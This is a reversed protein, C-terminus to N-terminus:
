TPKDFKRKSRCGASQTGGECQTSKMGDALGYAVCPLTQIRGLDFDEVAQKALSFIGRNSSMWLNQRDDELVQFIVNQLPGNHSAYATFKGGRYRSLGRQTGFWLAGQADEYISYVANHALGDRTTFVTFRGNQYRCLGDNTGIWLDGSRDQRIVRILDSTLGDAKRITTFKGDRWCGLGGGYAILTVLYIPAGLVLLNVWKKLTETWEPFIFRSM